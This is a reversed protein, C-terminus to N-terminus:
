PQALPAAGNGIPSKKWRNVVREWRIGQGTGDGMFRLLFHKQNRNLSKITDHLRNKSDTDPGPPLPDDIRPPWGEEEFSMLITEQNAAPLRFEKVITSGLYLRHRDSDWRPRLQPAKLRGTSRRLNSGHLILGSSNKCVERAIEAGAPTLVFCSRRHFTLKGSAKFQRGSMSSSTIERAHEVFGMCALWRLDSVTFGVQVLTEIEVAFDWLGLEANLAYQYARLLQELGAALNDHIDIRTAQFASRRPGARQKVTM